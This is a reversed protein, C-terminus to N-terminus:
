KISDCDVFYILVLLASVRDLSIIRICVKIFCIGIMMFVFVDLVLRKLSKAVVNM